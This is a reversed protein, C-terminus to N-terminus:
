RTVPSVSAMSRGFFSVELEGREGMGVSASSQDIPGLTDQDDLVLLRQREEQAVVELGFAVVTSLTARPSSASIRRRSCTGSRTSSSQISGPREPM